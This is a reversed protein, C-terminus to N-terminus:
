DSSQGDEWELARKFMARIEDLDVLEYSMLVKTPDDTLAMSYREVAYVLITGDWARRYAYRAPTPVTMPQGDRGAILQVETEIEIHSMYEGGAPYPWSVRGVETWGEEVLVLGDRRAPADLNVTEDNM